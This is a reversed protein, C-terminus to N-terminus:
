PMPTMPESEARTGFVYVLGFRADFRFQTQTDNLPGVNPYIDVVPAVSMTLWLPADPIGYRVGLPAEVGVGNLDIVHGRVGGGVFPVIRGAGTDYGPGIDGLADLALFLQNSSGFAPAVRGELMWRPHVRGSVTLAGGVPTSQLAAGVGVEAARVSSMGAVLLMAACFLAGRAFKAIRKM